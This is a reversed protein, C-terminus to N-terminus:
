LLLRTCVLRVKTKQSTMMKHTGKELDFSGAMDHDEHTVRQVPYYGAELVLEDLLAVSHNETIIGLTM